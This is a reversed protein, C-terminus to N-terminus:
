TDFLTICSEHSHLILNFILYNLKLALYMIFFQCEMFFRNRVKHRLCFVTMNFKIEQVQTISIGKFDNDTRCKDYITIRLFILLANEFINKSIHFYIRRMRIIIIAKYHWFDFQNFNIRWKPSLFRCFCYEHGIDTLLATFLAINSFKWTM